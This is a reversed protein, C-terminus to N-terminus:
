REAAVPINYNHITSSISFLRLEVQADSSSELKKCFCSMEKYFFDQFHTDRVLHQDTFITSYMFRRILSRM